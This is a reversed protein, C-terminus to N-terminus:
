QSFVAAGTVELGENKYNKSVINWYLSEWRKLGSIITAKEEITLVWFFTQLNM